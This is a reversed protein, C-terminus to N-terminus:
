KLEDLAADADVKPAPMRAKRMEEMKASVAAGQRLFALFKKTDGEYEVAAMNVVMAEAAAYEVGKLEAIAEITLSKGGGGQGIRSWEASGSEYHEVLARIAALKDAPSAPKGTEPDRSIAAADSLRQKWGHFEAHAKNAADAKAPDFTLDGAGLVTIAIIGGEMQQVTVVSNSKVKM